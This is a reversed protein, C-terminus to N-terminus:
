QYLSNGFCEFEAIIRIQELSPRLSERLAPLIQEPDVEQVSKPLRHDIVKTLGNGLSIIRRLTEQIDTDEEDGATELALEAYGVIHNLPTRLDHRIQRISTVEM